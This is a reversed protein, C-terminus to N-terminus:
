AVRAQRDVDVPTRAHEIPRVPGRLPREIAEIHQLEALLHFVVDEVLGYRMEDRDRAVTSTGLMARRRKDNDLALCKSTM